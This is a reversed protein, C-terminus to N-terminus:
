GGGFAAALFAAGHALGEPDIGHGVGPRIMWQVPVAAAQLGQVAAPLAQVPVIEDADGHILFVPPRSAVEAPLHEAGLLAGAYGLVAAIAPTRRLAAYLALMTGQSFGVLALQGPGLGANRLEADLFANLLPVSAQVGALLATPRRDQLSFWQRGFPAMDCPEPGDPAAFAADPLRRALEPALGILDNGDAGVGHLLVVLERPPGPRRPPLRPGSLLAM